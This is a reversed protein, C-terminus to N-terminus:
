FTRLETELEVVTQQAPDVNLAIATAFYQRSSAIPLRVEFRSGM